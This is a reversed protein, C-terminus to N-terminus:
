LPGQKGTLRRARLHLHKLRKQLVQIEDLWSPAPRKAYSISRLRDLNKLQEISHHLLDETSSLLRLGTDRTARDLPPAPLIEQSEGHGAEGCCTSTEHALEQDCYPCVIKKM